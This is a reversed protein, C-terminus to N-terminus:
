ITSMKQYHINKLLVKQIYTHRWVAGVHFKIKLAPSGVEKIFEKWYNVPFYEEIAFLVGRDNCYNACEGVYQVMRKREEKTHTGSVFTTRGWDGISTARLFGHPM